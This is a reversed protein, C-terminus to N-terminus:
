TASGWSTLLRLMAGDPRIFPWCSGPTSRSRKATPNKLRRKGPLPPPVLEKELAVERRFFLCGDLMRQLTNPLMDEWKSDPTGPILVMVEQGRATLELATKMDIQKVFM